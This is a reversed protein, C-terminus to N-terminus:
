KSVFDFKQIATNRNKEYSEYQPKSLITDIVKQWYKFICKNSNNLKESKIELAFKAWSVICPRLQKNNEDKVYYQRIIKKSNVFTKM